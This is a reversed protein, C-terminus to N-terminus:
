ASSLLIPALSYILVLLFSCIATDSFDVGGRSGFLSWEEGNGGSKDYEM